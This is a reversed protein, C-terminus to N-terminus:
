ADRVAESATPSGPQATPPSGPPSRRRASAVVRDITELATGLYNRPDLAHDIQAPSLAASIEADGLLEDRLHRGGGLARDCASSVLRHARKRGIPAALHMMVSEALALGRTLGLNQEMRQARVELGHLIEAMQTVAAHALLFTQPVAITEFHGQWDREYDQVMSEMAITVQHAAMRAHVLM